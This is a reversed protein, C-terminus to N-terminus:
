CLISWSDGVEVLWGVLRLEWLGWVSREVAEILHARHHGNSDGNVEKMEEQTYLTSEEGGPDMWGGRAGGQNLDRM